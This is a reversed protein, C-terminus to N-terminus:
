KKGTPKAAAPKKEKAAAEKKKKVVPKKKPLIKAKKKAKRIVLLGGDPGPVPGRIVLINNDKDTKVVELNQITVRSNGMRGAMHQGGYSHSPDSSAGISGIQRHQMSGHSEPGGSWHWRKVGGQFGNGISTAIVDVCDGPAFIDALVEQGIKYQDAIDIRFERIFRQPKANAKKFHGSLPKTVRNDKKEAFGIQIATYGDKDKTKIQLIPCPGAEIVTVAVLEGEQNFIQTMGIKKGLIGLAM